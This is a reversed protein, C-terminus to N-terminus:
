DTKIYAIAASYCLATHMAAPTHEDAYLYPTCLYAYYVCAIVELRAYLFCSYYFCISICRMYLM